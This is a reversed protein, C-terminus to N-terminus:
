DNSANSVILVEKADISKGLMGNNVNGIVTVEAGETIAANQASVIDINISGTEDRLTFEKENDIDVVKGTIKVMGSKPLDSINFAEADTTSVGPITRAAEKAGTVFSKNVNVSDANINTGIIGRDVTGSVTINDGQKLAVSENSDIEIKITNDTSDRLTFKRENQVSNVVGTITVDSKNEMKSIEAISSIEVALTSTSLFAAIGATIYASHKM